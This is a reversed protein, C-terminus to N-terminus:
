RLFIYHEQPAGFSPLEVSLAIQEYHQHMIHLSSLLTMYDCGARCIFRTYNHTSTAGDLVCNFLLVFLCFSFFFCAFLTVHSLHYSFMISLFKFWGLHM